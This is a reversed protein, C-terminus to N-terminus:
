ESVDLLHGKCGRRPCIQVLGGGRIILPVMTVSCIPCNSIGILESHCYPCFFQAICDPPIVFESAVNYSGYLSSLTMWGHQGECTITVRIAPYGDILHKPDMLSHNCRPCHVELPFVRQDTTLEIKDLGERTRALIEKVKQKKVNSFYHGDVVVVPGLACAGLCNVTELTFENDPTTQGSKVGLQHQMEEAINPAGRVHCATGLCCSVLHQGRPQLSFARYFTAVGYVEVLPRNMEQAVIKLADAPLYGYRGQIEDLVSILGDGEARHKDLIRYVTESPM